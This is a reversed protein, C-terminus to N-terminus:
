QTTAYHVEIGTLLDIARRFLQLPFQHLFISPVPHIRPIIAIFANSLHMNVLIIVLLHHLFLLVVSRRKRRKLGREEEGGEERGGEPQKKTM